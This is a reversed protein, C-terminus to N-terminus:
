MTQEIECNKKTENILLLIDYNLQHNPLDFHKICLLMAYNSLKISIM